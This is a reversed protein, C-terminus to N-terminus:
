HRMDDFLRSQFAAEVGRVGCPAPSSWYGYKPVQLVCAPGTLSSPRHQPAARVSANCRVPHPSVTFTHHFM